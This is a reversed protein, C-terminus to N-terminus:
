ATVKAKPESPEQEGAGGAARRRLPLAACLAPAGLLGWSMPDEFLANYFLSHVAIAVLGAAIALRPAARSRRAPRACPSSCRPSSWGASSRSGPCGPRPPSRSRRTTRRPRRRSRAGCAPRAERVRAQVRRRRRGPGPPSRRDAARRSSSRRPREDGQEPRPGVRAPALAPHAADGLAVAAIVAASSASRSRRAGAGSSRPSSRRASSSRPSARSRSRSSSGAWIVAIASPRAYAVRRDRDYLVIVLAALIAVVLFRGYVSPDYFVSNVRLVARVRQRRDGEPELLRRADRVPLRRDGRVRAGDGVLQAFLFTSGAAAGPSARSRSPSCGSRCGSSSSRSRARACTRRGRSRSGPGPSSRPSRGPSRASSARARTAASSSGASCRRGRRAVVRTCRCSCTRTPRASTCRSAPPCAPSRSVALLWPWRRFVRRARRRRARRRGRRRRLRRTGPRRSTAALLGCGVGLRRARRAAPRPAHRRPAARPRRPSPGGVRALEATVAAGRRARPARAPRGHRHATAGPGGARSCSCGPRRRGARAALRWRVRADASVGVGFRDRVQGTSRRACAQCLPAPGRRGRRHELHQRGSGAGGAALLYRARRAPRAASSGTGPPREDALQRRTFSARKGDVLLLAYPARPSYRSRVVRDARGDRDPSFVGAVRRLRRRGEAGDHRGPHPEAADDDPAPRDPPRAAQLPGAPVLRGRRRPRELHLQAERPWRKGSVLTRVVATAPSSRRAPRPRAKPAPVSEALRTACGCVPSFVQRDAARPDPEAREEAGAHGRVRGGHRRAARRRASDLPRPVRFRSNLSM